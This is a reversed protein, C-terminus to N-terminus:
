VRVLPRLRELVAPGIGSVDDLEDVSTFPAEARRDLIRQALVPGVGPLTDLTALDATNLDVASGAAGAGSGAGSTTGGGDPAAVPPAPAEGARPVRLQEGDVVTRALNVAGLDADPAAGGAAALADAVRADAAVTVVGPAGVAGVVHVVAAAPAAPSAGAPPLGAAPDGATGPTASSAAPRPAPVEVPAAHPVTSARLAVGGALLAVAVAAVAAVRPAVAWRVAGRPRPEAPPAGATEPRVRAAADALADRTSALPVEPDPVWTPRASDGRAHGRADDDAPVRGTSRDASHRSSAGHPSAVYPERPLAPPGAPVPQATPTWGARRGDADGPPAAYRPTSAAADESTTADDPLPWAEDDPPPWAEDDPPAAHRHTSPRRTGPAPGVDRPDVLSRGDPPVPRPPWPLATGRVPTAVADGPPTAATHPGTARWRRTRWPAPGGDDPPAATPAVSPAASPPPGADPVPTRRDSGDRTATADAPPAAARAPGSGTLAALRHAVAPEPRDRTPM